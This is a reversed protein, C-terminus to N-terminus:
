ETENARQLEENMIDEPNLIEIQRYEYVKSAFTSGGSFASLSVDNLSMNM